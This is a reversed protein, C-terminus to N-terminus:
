GGLSEAKSGMVSGRASPLSSQARKGGGRKAERGGQTKGPMAKTRLAVKADWTVDLTDYHQDAYDLFVEFNSGSPNFLHGQRAQHM